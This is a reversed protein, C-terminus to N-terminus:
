RAWIPQGTRRALDAYTVGTAQEWARRDVHVAYRHSGAHFAVEPTDRVAYDACMPIGFLDPVPPITGTECEPALAAFETETMIRVDDVDLARRAKTLDVHDDADVLLLMRRGDGAVVGVVKIFRQPDLHEARATAEATFTEPHEHLEYEVHRGALWDILGPHPGPKLTDVTM